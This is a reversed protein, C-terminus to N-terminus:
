LEEGQDIDDLEDATLGSWVRELYGLNLEFQEGSRDRTCLPDHEERLSRSMPCCPDLPLRGFGRKRDLWWHDALAEWHQRKREQRTCSALLLAYCIFSIALPWCSTSLLPVSLALFSVTGVIPWRAHRNRLVKM